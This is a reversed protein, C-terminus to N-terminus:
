LLGRRSLEFPQCGTLLGSSSLFSNAALGAHSLGLRERLASTQFQRDSLLQPYARSGDNWRGCAVKLLKSSLRANRSPAFNTIVLLLLQSHNGSSQQNM